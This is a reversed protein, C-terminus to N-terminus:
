KELEHLLKFMPASPIRIIGRFPQDLDLILFLAGALSLASLVLASIATINPPALLSFSLLIIILWAVLVLLLPLSISPVSQALLLSRLEGLEVSLDTARAKLSSQMEDQPSLREIAAYVRNGSETEPALRAGLNAEGSWLGEIGAKFTARIGARAEAAEPGFAALLRDLFAVKAAMQIVETRKTEYGNKASSVLLGLILASMTAVLGMALKVVEKSEESLHDEPVIRRLVRGLLVAGLLCGFVILSMSFENM